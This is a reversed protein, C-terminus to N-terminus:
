KLERGQNWPFSNDSYAGVRQIKSYFPSWLDLREIEEFLPNSFNRKIIEAVQEETWNSNLTGYHNAKIIHPLKSNISYALLIGCKKMIGARVISVAINRAILVGSKDVKTPDKSDPAGGGHPVIVGYGYAGAMLKRGVAGSDAVPGFITWPKGTGNIVIQTDNDIELDYKALTPIILNRLTYERLEELPLTPDHSAAITVGTVGSPVLNSDQNKQRILIQTKGDPRVRGDLHEEEVMATLGDALDRAIMTAVPMYQPTEDSAFGYMFGQDGAGGTDVGVAIDQSQQSVAIIINDEDPYFGYDQQNYGAERFASIFHPKLNFSGVANPVTMEGLAIVMGTQHIKERLEPPFQELNEGTLPIGAKLSLEVAYRPRAGVKNSETLLADLAEETAGSALNDPHGRTVIEAAQNLSFQPHSGGVKINVAEQSM